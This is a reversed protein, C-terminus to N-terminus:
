RLSFLFKLIKNGIFLFGLMLVASVITAKEAEIFGFKKKLNVIIPISGIIDILTFLTMTVALTQALNVKSLEEMFMM